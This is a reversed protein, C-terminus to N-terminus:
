SNLIRRREIQIERARRLNDNKMQEALLRGSTAIQQGIENTSRSINLVMSQTERNMTVSEAIMKASDSSVGGIKDVISLGLVVALNIM